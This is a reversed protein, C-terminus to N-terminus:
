ASKRGRTTKRAPASRRSTKGAARPRARGSLSAKLAEVLDLVKGDGGQPASAETIDEGEVKRKIAELVRERVTDKYKEPEFSDTAGQEILKKALTLEAAKVDGEAVNLEDPPRLEDAYHLQEMVLIGDKPRLLVLYQQGRAAYQGLAARGTQELAKALLRYPRDGGKGPGLYYVKDLYERAVEELMVFEAIDISGTAKEDLAKLEEPSFIVYEDKKVEYGKVIQDRPVVEDTTPDVYQQKVRQGSAKSIMHFRVDDRTEASAYLEVPVSVLGFSITASAMSRPM